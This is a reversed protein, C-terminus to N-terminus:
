ASPSGARASAPSRTCASPTSSTTSGPGASGPPAAWRSCTTAPRGAPTSPRPRWCPASRACRPPHQRYPRGNVTATGSTPADLGLILRMTTSKGAGNPGLFGTVIGPRVTVTLDDVAVKDGYRKTLNRLEIM